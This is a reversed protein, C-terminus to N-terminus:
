QLWWTASSKALLWSAREHCTLIHIIFSERQEM